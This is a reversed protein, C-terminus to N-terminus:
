KKPERAPESDNATKPLLRKRDHPASEVMVGIKAPPRAIRAADLEGSYETSAAAKASITPRASRAAPIKRRPQIASRSEIGTVIPKRAPMETCMKTEWNGPM